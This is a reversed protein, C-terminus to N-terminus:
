MELVCRLRRASIYHERPYGLANNVFLTKHKHVKRNVHSHGFVHVDPRLYAVQEGLLASGLVPILRRTLLSTAVSMLDKRPVFHSFSVVKGPPRELSSHNMELFLRAVDQTDLGRPWRCAYFDAWARRLSRSPKGFSFDYWGLMPVVVLGDMHFLETALGWDRALTQLAYFRDFSDLNKGGRVWLDHNGPVFGVARFRARLARFAEQLLRWDHSIDGALVLVDDKYDWQSLRHLWRRNEGYDIHIDSLAFVRMLFELSPLPALVLIFVGPVLCLSFPCKLSLRPGCMARMQCLYCKQLVLLM